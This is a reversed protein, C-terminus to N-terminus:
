SGADPLMGVLMRTVNEFDCEIIPLVRFVGVEIDLRSELTRHALLTAPM